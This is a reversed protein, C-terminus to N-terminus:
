LLTQGSAAPRGDPSWAPAARRICRESPRESHSDVGGFGGGLYSEDVGGAGHDGAGSCGEGDSDVRRFDGSAWQLLSAM